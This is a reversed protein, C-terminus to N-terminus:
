SDQSSGTSGPYPANAGKVSGWIVQNLENMPARDEASFDMAASEKAGFSDKTNTATMSTSPTLASYPTTDPASSFLRWMPVANADFQSLPALGLILEMTRVMAATDYLTHDVRPNQRSTYPSIVLSTTRHADVHDPGNQADDETVFVATSAWDKSHSLTEILQGLAQDNSAVYAQPTPFGPRTGATHNNPLRMIEFAPLTNSAEFGAFERQWEALRDSEPYRLDYARMKPDVKGALNPTTVSNVTTPAFCLVDGAPITVGIYSHAIPGPCTSATSEPMLGIVTGNFAFEGYDRLSVGAAAASDWLYGGASLNITSRGEFDYGRNRGQAPSYDQPWTKENYDSANASTIWNHGDASVEADAYFNDLVGFREALAHQNPTTARPFLTLASSGNGLSLDGYVQDYTRNEKIIYIVHKIPSAHGPTPIPNNPSRQLVSADGYHNDRAVEGTYLALMAASPVGVTSLTGVMMTGTYKDFTCNCYGDAYGGVGDVFPVSTRTPNPYFGTDNPGAGIGKGNTIFLTRGDGSVNVSTPYWATPIRGAVRVPIGAGDLTVVSVEDSGSDAVYLARADPSVALGVPSSSLPAGSYPAISIRDVEVDTATNVVSVADSNADAVYLTNGPGLAMANPHNGVAITKTVTQTATDIVSLTADGWNSVYGKKGDRTFLATFPYSGAAITKVVSRTSTDVVSVNNALNDAVYLLKGDPSLGLGTPFPNAALTGIAIDGTKTLTGDGGVAYTHVVDFGGGSAYAQKGDPSYALGVFVSDPVFYQITQIVKGSSTAVVQLSQIGAGGNTVLLHDGDPALVANLPLDGLASQSGAPTVTRNNILLAGNNARAGPDGLKSDGLAAAAAATTSLMLAGLAIGAATRRGFSRSLSAFVKM